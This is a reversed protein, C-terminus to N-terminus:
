LHKIRNFRGGSGLTVFHLINTTNQQLKGYSSDAEQLATLKTPERYVWCLKYM